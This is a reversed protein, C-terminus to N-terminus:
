LFSLTPIRSSLSSVQDTIRCRLHVGSKCIGMEWCHERRSKRDTIGDAHSCMSGVQAQRRRQGTLARGGQQADRRLNVLLCPHFCKGTSRGLPHLYISIMLTFIGESEPELRSEFHCNKM